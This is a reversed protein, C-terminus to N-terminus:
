SALWYKPYGLIIIPDGISARNACIPAPSNVLKSLNLKPNKITIIGFDNENLPITFDNKDIIYIVGDSTFKIKCSDPYFENSILVHKNTLINIGNTFLATGSGITKTTSFNTSFSCEIFAIRGSWKNVTDRM